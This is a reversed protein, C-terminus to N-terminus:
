AYWLSSLQSQRLAENDVILNETSDAHGKVWVLEYTKHEDLADHWFDSALQAIHRKNIAWGMSLWGIVLRSDTHIISHSNPPSILIAQWVAFLEAYNNTTTGLMDGYLEGDQLVAWGAPGPNGRSSGDTYSVTHIRTMSPNYRVNM